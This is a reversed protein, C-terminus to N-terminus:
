SEPHEKLAEEFSELAEDAKRLAEAEAAQIGGATAELAEEFSDFDNKAQNQNTM